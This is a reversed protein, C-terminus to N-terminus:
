SEEILKSYATADLLDGPEESLRVKFIWGEGYPDDNIVKPEDIVAANVATIEGSVPSYIDSVSKTSEVEGCPEGAEVTDGEGAQLEIFVIEGLADAAHATIGVTVIGDENDLGSVWEHEESYRLQEPVSM